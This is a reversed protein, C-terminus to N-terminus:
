SETVFTKPERCKPFTYAAGHHKDFLRAMCNDFIRERGKRKLRAIDTDRLGFGKLYVVEGDAIIGVALGPVNWAKITSRVFADFGRLQPRGTSTPM